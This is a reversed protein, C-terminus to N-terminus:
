FFFFVQGNKKENVNNGLPFSAFQPIRSHQLLVYCLTIDFLWHLQKRSFIHSFLRIENHQINNCKNVTACEQDLLSLSGYIVVNRKNEM